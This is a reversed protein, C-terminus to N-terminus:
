DAKAGQYLAEFREAHERYVVNRKVKMTPTMEGHEQTLDRELIFFRKVGAIKAVKANAADIVSQIEAIAGDHEALQAASAGPAGVAEGLAGIEDPDLTIMATLFQKRDGYIM